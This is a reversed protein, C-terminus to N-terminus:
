EALLKNIAKLSVNVDKYDLPVCYSQQDIALVLSPFGEVPLSQAVNLESLLQQQTASSTLKARFDAEDIGLQSAFAILTSDDSPNQAQLYYGQQIAFLMQQELGYHRAVLCARCAPYSSRRPKCQRWFDFNFQTGLQTAIKQWTNALFQQMELPMPVDSDPALGGLLYTLQVQPLQLKIQEALALWTPRYGWCWSCMPDYVYFLQVQKRALPQDVLPSSLRQSM